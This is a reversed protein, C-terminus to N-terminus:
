SARSLDVANIRTPRIAVVVRKEGPQDITRIDMGYKAGVLDAFAYDDAPSIEADGRIEVYRAPNTLDLIFLTCKPNVLLNKVKQRATNLSIRIQDGEALFWTATLQPRGDGGVTALTAVATQLLDQHTEPVGAM